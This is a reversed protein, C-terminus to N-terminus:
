IITLLNPASFNAPFFSILKAILLYVRPMFDLSRLLKVVFLLIKDIQFCDDLCYFSSNSKIDWGRIKFIDLLSYLGLRPFVTIPWHIFIKELRIIQPLSKVVSLIEDNVYAKQNVSCLEDPAWV